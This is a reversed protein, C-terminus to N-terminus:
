FDIGFLSGGPNDNLQVCVDSDNVVENPLDSKIASFIYQIDNNRCCENIYQLYKIKKREELSELVGDHYVFNIFNNPLHSIILSLDWAACLIKKYTNGESESTEVDKNLFETVFEVNDNKNMKLYIIANKSLIYNIIYKFIMKLADFLDNNDSIEDNIKKKCEDLNSKTQVVKNQITEIINSNELNSKLSELSTTLDFIQESLEYYKKSLENEQIFTKYGSLKENLTKLQVNIKNLKNDKSKLSKSLYKMREVSIKNNFEVLQDYEKVLLDGFYIKFEEFVSKTKDFDYIKQNEISAKIMEIELSLNYKEINLGKIEDQIAGVSVEIAKDDSQFFNINRLEEKKAKIENEVIAIKEKLSQKNREDVSSFNKEILSISNAQNSLEEMLLYKDSLLHFDFGIMSFVKPKWDKDKINHSLKFVDNYDKQKRLSYHIVDRYTYDKEAFGLLSNLIMRPNDKKGNLPLDEYDWMTEDIFNENRTKHLKISIKTPAKISRRITLFLNGSYEVELYFIHNIFASKKLLSFNKGEALLLFDILEVLKTKGINHSDKNLNYSNQIDGLVINIGNHFFITKFRIDNCYLKTLKM